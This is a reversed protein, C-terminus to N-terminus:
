ATISPEVDHNSDSAGIPREPAIYQPDDKPRAEMTIGGTVQSSGSYELGFLATSVLYGLARRAMRVHVPGPKHMYRSMFHSLFGCEAHVSSAAFIVVGTAKTYEELCEQVHSGLLARLFVLPCSKGRLLLLLVLSLREEGYVNCGVGPTGQM